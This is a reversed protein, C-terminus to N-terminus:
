IYERIMVEDLGVTSVFFGRARFNEGKYNRVKTGFRHAIAIARKGKLYGVANSVAYESPISIWEGEHKQDLMSFYVAPVTLGM